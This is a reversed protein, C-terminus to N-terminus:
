LYRQNDLTVTLMFLQWKNGATTVLVNFNVIVEWKCHFINKNEKRGWKYNLVPVTELGNQIVCVFHMELWLGAQMRNEHWFCRHTQEQKYQLTSNLSCECLTVNLSAAVRLKSNTVWSSTQKLQLWFTIQFKHQKRHQKEDSCPFHM